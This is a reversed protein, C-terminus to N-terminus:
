LTRTHTRTSHYLGCSFKDFKDEGNERVTSQIIVQPFLRVCCLQWYIQVNLHLGHSQILIFQLVESLICPTHAHTHTHTHTRADTRRHTYTRGHTQTNIILHTNPTTTCDVCLYTFVLGLNAILATYIHGAGDATYPMKFKAELSHSSRLIWKLFSQM